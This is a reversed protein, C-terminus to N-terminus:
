VTCVDYVLLLSMTCVVQKQFVAVWSKIDDRSTLLSDREMNFAEEIERRLETLNFAKVAADQKSWWDKVKTYLEVNPGAVLPSDEDEDALTAAETGETDQIGCCLATLHETCTCSM